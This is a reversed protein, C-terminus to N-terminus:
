EQRYRNDVLAEGLDLNIQREATPKMDMYHTEFSDPRVIGLSQYPEENMESISTAMKALYDFESVRDAQGTIEVFEESNTTGNDLRWSEIRSDNGRTLPIRCISWRKLRSYQPLPYVRVFQKLEKSYGASCVTRGYKKSETPKTRGLMIFDELIM